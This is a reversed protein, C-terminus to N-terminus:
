DEDPRPLSTDDFTAEDPTPPGELPCGGPAHERRPPRAYPLLAPGGGPPRPFYTMLFRGGGGGPRIRALMRLRHLWAEHLHLASGQQQLAMEARAAFFPRARLEACLCGGLPILTRCRDSPAGQPIREAAMHCQLLRAAQRLVQARVGLPLRM